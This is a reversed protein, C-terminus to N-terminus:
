SVMAVTSQFDSRMSPASVRRIVRHPRRNWVTHAFAHAVEVEYDPVRVDDGGALAKMGVDANALSPDDSDRLPQWRRRALDIGPMTHPGGAADVGMAM